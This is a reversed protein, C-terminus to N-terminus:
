LDKQKLLICAPIIAIVTRKKPPRGLQTSVTPSAAAVGAETGTSARFALAKRQRQTNIGYVGANENYKMQM